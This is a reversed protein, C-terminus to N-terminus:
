ATAPEPLEPADDGGCVDRWLHYSVGFMAMFIAMMFGIYLPVAIVLMLWNGVLRGLLFALMMALALAIAIAILALLGGLAYALLPLANKATGVVGDGIAAFVGRRGLAVQGLAIAYFVTFLLFFATGVAILTGFGHPLSPPVPQAQMTLAQMYWHLLGGGMAVLLLAFIAFYILLVVLGFGILRLASGDRYPGFIDRIRAARGCEAADIVQLYGGYLPIVLLGILMTLATLGVSTMSSVPVDAQIAHLRIPITALSPLVVAVLLIAAGGWLPKPHRFGASFGRMLWGFGASAGRSRTTM